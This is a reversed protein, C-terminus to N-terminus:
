PGTPAHAATHFNCAPNYYLAHSAEVEQGVLETMTFHNLLGEREGDRIPAPVDGAGQTVITSNAVDTPEGAGPSGSPNAFAAPAFVAFAFAVAIGTIRRRMYFGKRGHLIGSPLM